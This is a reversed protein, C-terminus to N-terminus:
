KYKKNSPTIHDNILECQIEFFQSIQNLNSILYEFCNKFNYMRTNLFNKEFLYESKFGRHLPSQNPYSLDLLYPTLVGINELLVKYLM